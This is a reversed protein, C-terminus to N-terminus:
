LGYGSTAVPFYEGTFSVVGADADIVIGSRHFVEEHFIFSSISRLMMTSAIRVAVRCSVGSSARHRNYCQRLIIIMVSM